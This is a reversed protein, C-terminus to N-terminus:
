RRFKICKLWKCGGKYKQLYKLYKGIIITPKIGKKIIYKTIISNKQLIFLNNHKTRNTIMGHKM